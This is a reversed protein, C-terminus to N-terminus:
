TSSKVVVNHQKYVIFIYSLMFLFCLPALSNRGLVLCNVEQQEHGHRQWTIRDEKSPVMRCIINNASGQRYGKPNRPFPESWLANNKEEPRPIDTEM